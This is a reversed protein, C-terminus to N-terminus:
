ETDGIDITPGFSPNVVGGESEGKKVFPTVQFTQVKRSWCRNAMALRLQYGGFIFVWLIPAGILMAVVTTAAAMGPNDIFNLIPYVYHNGSPDTGGAYVYVVSFAIYILGYLSSHYAHLVRIPTATIFLDMVVYVSNVGHTSANM